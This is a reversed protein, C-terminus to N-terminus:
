RKRPKTGAVKKVAKKVTPKGTAAEAKAAVEIVKQLAALNLVLEVQGRKDVIIAGTSDSGKCTATCGTCDGSCQTCGDTCVCQTPELCDGMGWNPRFDIGKASPSLRMTLYKQKFKYM